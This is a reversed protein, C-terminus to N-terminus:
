LAGKTEEEMEREGDEMSGERGGKKERHLRVERNIKSGKVRM